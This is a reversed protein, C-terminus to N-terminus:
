VDEKKTEENQGEAVMERIEEARKLIDEDPESISALRGEIGKLDEGELERQLSYKGKGEQCVAIGVQALYTYAETVTFDPAGKVSLLFQDFQFLALNVAQSRNKIDMRKMANYYYVCRAVTRIDQRIAFVATKGVKNPM